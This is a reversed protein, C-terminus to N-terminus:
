AAVKAIDLFQVSSIFLKWVRFGQLHLSKEVLAYLLTMDHGDRLPFPLTVPGGGAGGANFKFSVFYTHNTKM